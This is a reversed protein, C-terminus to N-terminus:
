PVAATEPTLDITAVWADFWARADRRSHGLIFLYLRGGSVVTAEILEPCEAIRGSQGDITIQPQQSRPGGCDGPSVYEDVWQDISVGDPLKTSAAKFYAAFGTEVGDFPGDNAGSNDVPPDAVPDWLETAPALGGRDVYKFTFGNTPSVFTATMPPFHVATEPTLEITAVFADFVARADDRDHELAFVYLLGDTVVTAEIRNRCEAVRGRRGGITIEAQRSRPVGCGGPNPGDDSLYGDIREDPGVTRGTEDISAENSFETSMGMFVAASGTEVVDFGDEGDETAPTVAAGGPYRVSYGNRPSVFTTTLDPFGDAPDLEDGGRDVAAFAVAVMAVAAGVLLWRGPSRRSPAVQGTPRDEIDLMIIEGERQDLDADPRGPEDSPVVDRGFPTGYPDATLRQLLVQELRDAFQSDPAARYNPPDTM